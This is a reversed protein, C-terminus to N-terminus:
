YRNKLDLDTYAYISDEASRGNKFENNTQNYLNTYKFDNSYNRNYLSLYEEDYICKLAKGIKFGCDNYLLLFKIEQSPNGIKITTYVQQSYYDNVYNTTNYEIDDSDITNLATKFPFILMSYYYPIFFIFLFLQAIM